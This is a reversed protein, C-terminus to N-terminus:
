LYNLSLLNTFLILYHLIESLIIDHYHDKLAQVTIKISEVRTIVFTKGASQITQDVDYTKYFNIDFYEKDWVIHDSASSNMIWKQEM